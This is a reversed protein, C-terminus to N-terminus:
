YLHKLTTITPPLYFCSFYGFVAVIDNSSYGLQEASSTFNSTCPLNINISTENIAKIKKGKLFNIM